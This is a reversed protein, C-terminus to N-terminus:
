GQSLVKVWLGMHQKVAFFNVFSFKHTNISHDEYPLTKFACTIFEGNPTNWM